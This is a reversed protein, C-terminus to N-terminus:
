LSEPTFAVVNDIAPTNSFLMVLRDMGLAIGATEPMNALEKLFKEPMPTISNGSKKRKELETEFRARQEVPDTLESFGNALEMGAIYLEFRQAVQRDGSAKKLKQGSYPKNNQPKLKALAAMSAPYDILFAPKARGLCTEVKFSFLEDFRNNRIAGDLTEGTHRTFADELSIRKWNGTLDITEDQYVLYDATGCELAIYRFLKQCEEMLDLYTAGARYWELLTYEPLHLRGRENNRFCRCIQFIKKLGGAMLRKM